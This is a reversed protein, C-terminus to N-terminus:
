GDKQMWGQPQHLCQTELASERRFPAWFIQFLNWKYLDGQNASWTHMGKLVWGRTRHIWARRDTQRCCSNEYKGGITKESKKCCTLRNWTVFGSKPVFIESKKQLCNIHFFSTKAPRQGNERCHRMLKSQFKMNLYNEVNDIVKRNVGISFDDEGM